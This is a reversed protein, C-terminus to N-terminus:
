ATKEKPDAPKLAEFVLRNIIAPCHRNRNVAELAERLRENEATLAAIQKVLPDQPEQYDPFEVSLYRVPRGLASAYEIEGRTSEGIYSGVDLVWVWDCLDIKRKHLADLAQKMEADPYQREHHGWLGVALVINGEGTLRANESIWSQKFKTSGCICVVPATFREKIAAKLAAIQEEYRDLQDNQKILEVKYKEHIERDKEKMAELHDTKSVSRFRSNSAVEEASQKNEANYEQM